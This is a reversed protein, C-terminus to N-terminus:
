SPSLFDNNLKIIFNNKGKENNDNSIKIAENYLNTLNNNNLSLFQINSQNNLDDFNDKYKINKDKNEKKSIEEEDSILHFEKLSKCEYFMYSLNIKKNNLILLKVKLIKINEDFVEYTDTLLYIKNNIIM